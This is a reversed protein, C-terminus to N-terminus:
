ATEDDAAGINHMGNWSKGMMEDLVCKDFEPFRGGFM